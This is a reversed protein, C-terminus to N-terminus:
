VLRQNWENMSGCETDDYPGSALCNNCAVKFRMGLHAINYDIVELDNSGCFPCSMLSSYIM